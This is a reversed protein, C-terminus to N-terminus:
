AVIREIHRWYLPSKLLLIVVRKKFCNIEFGLMSSSAMTRWIVQCDATNQFPDFCKKWRFRLLIMVKGKAERRVNMQVKINAVRCASMETAVGILSVFSENVRSFLMEIMPSGVRTTIPTVEKPRQSVGKSSHCDCIWLSLSSSNNTWRQINTLLLRTERSFPFLAITFIWFRLFAM